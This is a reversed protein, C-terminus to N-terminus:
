ECIKRSTELIDDVEKIEEKTLLFRRKLPIPIWVKKSSDEKILDEKLNETLDPKKDEGYKVISLLEELRKSGANLIVTEKEMEEISLEKEQLNDNNIVDNLEKELKEQTKDLEELKKSELELKEKNKCEEIILQKQYNGNYHDLCFKSYKITNLEPKFETILIKELLQADNENTIFIDISDIINYHWTECLHRSLRGQIGNGCCSMGIYSENYKLNLVYVGYYNLLKSELLDLNDIIMSGIIKINTGEIIKDVNVRNIKNM